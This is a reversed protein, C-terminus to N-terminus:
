SPSLLTELEPSLAVQAPTQGDVDKTDRQAGRKLLLEAVQLHGCSSAYHLPTQGEEDQPLPSDLHTVPQRLTARRLFSTIPLRFKAEPDAGRDLLLEVIELHGRDCAWHLMCMGQADREHVSTSNNLCETLRELCGEKTWDFADKNEPAVGPEWCPRSVVAGLMSKSSSKTEEPRWDPFLHRVFAVYEDMATTATMGGLQNWADWKQRRRFDYFAPKPLKCPGELAQKYRAYLYLLQDNALNRTHAQVHEAAKFFMAKQEDWEKLVDAHDGQAM